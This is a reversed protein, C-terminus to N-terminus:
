VPDPLTVAESFFLGYGFIMAWLEKVNCTFHGLIGAEEKGMEIENEFWTWVIPPRRM